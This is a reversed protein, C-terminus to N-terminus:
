RLSKTARGSFKENRPVHLTVNSDISIRVEWTMCFQLITYIVQM